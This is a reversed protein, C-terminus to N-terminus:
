LACECPMSEEDTYGGLPCHDYGGEAWVHLQRRGQKNCRMLGVVDPSELGREAARSMAVAREFAEPEEQRLQEWEELTNNPCFTCASKTPVELGAARIQRECEERDWKCEVLPYWPVFRKNEWKDQFAGRVRNSEGADYGIVKVIRRGAKWEDLFKANCAAWWRQPQAKYKQSCKKWGYAISPLTSTRRCEAELTELRWARPRALGEAARTIEVVRPFGMRDLWAPLIKDRYRITAAHESGPNAMVICDPICGLAALRVLVAVSNVGGGYSVMVRRGAARNPALQEEFLM